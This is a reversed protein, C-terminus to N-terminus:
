APPLCEVVDSAPTGWDDSTSNSPLVTNSWCWEDSDTHDIGNWFEGRLARSHGAEENPLFTASVDLVTNGSFVAVQEFTSNSLQVANSYRALPEPSEDYPWLEQRAIVGLEDPPLIASVLIFTGPTGNEFNDRDGIGLNLLDIDFETANYLEFWECNDADCNPNAMVETIILDGPVLEEVSLTDDGTSSSSGIDTDTDPTTETGNDTDSTGSSPDSDSVTSAQTTSATTDTGTASVGTTTDTATQTISGATIQPGTSSSGTDDTTAGTTATTDGDGGGGGDIFCGTALVVALPAALTCTSRFMAVTRSSSPGWPTFNCGLRACTTMAHM